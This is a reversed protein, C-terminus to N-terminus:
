LINYWLFLLKTYAMVLDSGLGEITLCTRDMKIKPTNSEKIYIVMANGIQSECTIIPRDMCANTENATCAAILTVGNFMKMFKSLDAAALGVYTLNGLPNFTFYAGTLNNIQLLTFFDKPNGEVAIDKVQSPSYRFDTNVEAGFQPSSMTTYWFNGIKTFTFGNSYETQIKPKAANRLFSGLAFAMVIIILLSIALGKLNDNDKKTKKM